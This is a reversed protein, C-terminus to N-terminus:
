CQAEYVSTQCGSSVHTLQFYYAEGTGIGNVGHPLTLAVPAPVPVSGPDNDYFEVGDYDGLIGPFVGGSDDLQISGDYPFVCRSVRQYIVRDMAYYPM